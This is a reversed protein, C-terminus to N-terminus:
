GKDFIYKFDITPIEKTRVICFPELFKKNLLLRGTIKTESKLDLTKLYDKDKSYLRLYVYKATIPLIYMGVVYYGGGVNTISRVQGM